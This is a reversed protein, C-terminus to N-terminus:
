HYPGDDKQPTNYNEEVSQFTLLQILSKIFILLGNENIDSKEKITRKQELIQDFNIEFTSNFVYYM